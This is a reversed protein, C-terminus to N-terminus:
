RPNLIEIQGKTLRNDQPDNLPSMLLEAGDLSHELGLYHGVEHALTSVLALHSDRDPDVIITNNQM